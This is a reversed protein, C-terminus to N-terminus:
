ASAASEAAFRAVRRAFGGVTAVLFLRLLAATGAVKPTFSGSWEIRSGPGHPEIHVDARYSRVPLGSLLTYALHRPPDYAVIEERSGIRGLGLARIAGIGGPPPEGERAWWSRVVVPGAWRSWGAGDALVAFVQEPPASSVASVRYTSVM